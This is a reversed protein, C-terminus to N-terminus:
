VSFSQSAEDVVFFLFPAVSLSCPTESDLVSIFTIVSVADFVQKIISRQRYYLTSWLCVTRGTAIRSKESGRLQQAERM